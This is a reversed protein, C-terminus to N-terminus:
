LSRSFSLHKKKKKRAKMLHLHPLAQDVGYPKTNLDFIRVTGDESTTLFKERDFPHWCCYTLAHTHGKTKASDRVYM